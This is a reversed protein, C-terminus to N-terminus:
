RLEYLPSALSCAAPVPRSCLLDSDREVEWWRVLQGLTYGCTVAELRSRPAIDHAVTHTHTHLTFPPDMTQLNFTLIQDLDLLAGRRVCWPGFREGCTAVGRRM